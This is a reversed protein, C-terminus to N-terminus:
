RFDARMTALYIEVAKELQGLELWEDETHAQEVSGPGFVISPVGAASYTSADTGYGAGEPAGVVGCSELVKAFKASVHANVQPDLAPDVFPPLFEYEISPDDKALAAFLTEIEALVMESSEGPLVRRDLEIECHDPIINVAVGGSITNISAAATGTLPHTLSLKSAYKSEFGLVLKAMASIASKGNSPKSSHAAVGKTKLKWRIVGNHAVVQRCQTPEGVFIAVPKWPLHAMQHNIFAKAGTKGIEEDTVFLVAVNNAAQGSQSYQRLAALIAAGSGKTDCVGRGYIRGAKIEPTFPPITMGDVGVTDAHCEFLIWPLEKSSEYTILLNYSDPHLAPPIALKSTELNWSRALAECYDFLKREPFPRGSTVENVTDFEVM